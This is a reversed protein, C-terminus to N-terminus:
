ASRVGYFQLSSFASSSNPVLQQQAYHAHLSFALKIHRLAVVTDASSAESADSVESQFLSRSDVGAAYITGVQAPTLSGVTVLFPGM